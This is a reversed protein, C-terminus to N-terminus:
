GVGTKDTNPNFGTNPTEVRHLWLYRNRWVTIYLLELFTRSNPGCELLVAESSGVHIELEPSSCWDIKAQVLRIGPQVAITAGAGNSLKAVEVGDVM